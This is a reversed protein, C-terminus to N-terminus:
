HLIEVMIRCKKLDGPELGMGDTNTIEEDYSDPKPNIWEKTETDWKPKDDYVWVAGNEDMGMWCTDLHAQPKQKKNKM